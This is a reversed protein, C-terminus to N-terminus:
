SRRSRWLRLTMGLVFASGAIIGLLAMPKEDKMRRAKSRLDRIVRESDIRSEHFASRLFQRTRIRAIAVRDAISDARSPLGYASPEGAPDAPPLLPEGPIGMANLISYEWNNRRLLIRGQQCMNDHFLFEGFPPSM